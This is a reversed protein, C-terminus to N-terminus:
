KYLRRAALSQMFVARIHRAIDILPLKAIIYMMSAIKMLLSKIKDYAMYITIIHIARIGIDQANVQWM